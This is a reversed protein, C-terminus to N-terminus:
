RDRGMVRINGGSIIMETQKEKAINLNVRGSAIDKLYNIAADYRDKVFGPIEDFQVRTHLNFIAIDASYRRIVLPVDTTIPVDISANALYGDILSDAEKIAAEAITDDSGTLRNYTDYGVSRQLDDTTSYM